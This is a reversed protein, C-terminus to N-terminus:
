DPTTPSNNSPSVPNSRRLTMRKPPDPSETAEAILRLVDILAEERESEGSRRAKGVANGIARHLVLLPDRWETVLPAVSRSTVRIGASGVAAVNVVVNGGGATQDRTQESGGESRARLPVSLVDAWQSSICGAARKAIGRALKDDLVKGLHPHAHAANRCAGEIM